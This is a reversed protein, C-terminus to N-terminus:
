TTEQQQTAQGHEQERADNGTVRRWLLVGGALVVLLALVPDKGGEIASCGGGGANRAGGQSPQTAQAAQAPVVGSGALAVELAPAGQAALAM